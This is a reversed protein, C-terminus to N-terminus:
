SEAYIEVSRWQEQSSGHSRTLVFLYFTKVPFQFYTGPSQQHNLLVWRPEGCSILNNNSFQKGDMIPYFILKLLCKVSFSCSVKQDKKTNKEWPAIAHLAMELEKGKKRTVDPQFHVWKYVFIKMQIKFNKNRFSQKVKRQLYSLWTISYTHWMFTSETYVHSTCHCLNSLLFWWSYDKWHVLRSHSCFSGAFLLFM